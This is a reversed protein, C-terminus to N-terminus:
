TTQKEDIDKLNELIDFYSDCLLETDKNLNIGNKQEKIHLMESIIRKHYNTEHDLIKVKDWNFDHKEKIIHESIVSFRNINGNINNKHEKIRTKLQRKTQGVYSADCDNCNIKYVVSSNQSHLNKDKHTKIIRNLKNLCRYGINVKNSKKISSVVMDSIRNIYPVVVFKKTTEEEEVLANENSKDESNNHRNLIVGSSVLHKIRQNIKNFILNLPYGNSLLTRVVLMINKNYFQPHSLLLCRDTLNYIIAIKHCLPHNSFYSLVRGSFTEKQYWDIYITNNSVIISLDLFNLCRNREREVTFQLRDHYDNFSKVIRNIDKAPATLIIDDVYRYYFSFSIDINKIVYEELDQMALDALIPSLPSGMPTGFVQKYITGNFVFYTSSLVFRIAKIFDDHPLSTFKCIYEWRNDISEIAMDIPVNTFLSIVDLSVLIEDNKIKKGSLINAM